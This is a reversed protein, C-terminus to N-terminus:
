SGLVDKRFDRIKGTFLERNKEKQKEMCAAVTYGSKKLNERVKKIEGDKAFSREPEFAMHTTTTVIVTKGLSVLEETLRFILSTKGGGGVVSIVKKSNVDIDLIETFRM